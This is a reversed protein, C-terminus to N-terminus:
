SLYEPLLKDYQVTSDFEHITALKYGLGKFMRSLLPYQNGNFRNSSTFLDVFNVLGLSTEM